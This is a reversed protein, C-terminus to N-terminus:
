QASPFYDIVQLPKGWCKEDNLFNFRETSRETLSEYRTGVARLRNLVRLHKEDAEMTQTDDSLLLPTKVGIFQAFRRMSHAILWDITNYYLPM